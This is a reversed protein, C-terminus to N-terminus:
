KTFSSVDMDVLICVAAAIRNDVRIIKLKLKVARASPGDGDPFSAVVAEAVVPAGATRDAAAVGGTAVAAAASSSSRGVPSKV